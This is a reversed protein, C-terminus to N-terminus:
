YYYYYYYYYYVIKIRLFNFIINEEWRYRLRGLSPLGIPKGTLIKFASRCERKGDVRGECRLRRSKSVKVQLTKGRYNDCNM